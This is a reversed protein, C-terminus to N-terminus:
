FNVTKNADLTLARTHDVGDETVFHITYRGPLLGDIEFRGDKVLGYPGGAVVVAGHMFSHIHCRLRVIGPHTFTVTKGPGTDYYGLDFGNAKDTSYISHYFPDENPFRVGSGVPVVIIKPKFALDLNHMEFEGAEAAPTPGSVWVALGHTATGSLSFVQAVALGALVFALM